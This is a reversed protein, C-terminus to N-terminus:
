IPFRRLMSRGSSGLRAWRAIHQAMTRTLSWPADPRRFHETGIRRRPSRWGLCSRTTIPMWSDQVPLRCAQTWPLATEFLSRAERLDDRTRKYLHWMGRQYVDWASLRESPKSTARQQEAKGLEPAIAAVIAATVEDQVAFIDELVRDFREAWIQKGPAAEILQASIRIRDGVKRVSGDLVYSVGLQQGVQKVDVAEGKYTFTSNRAIVLLWRNRSLAAIIDESVGDAFYEQEPDRSLNKFPLVAISPKDTPTPTTPEPEAPGLADSSEIAIRYIRIPEAVNKLGQEGLDEFDVDVKGRVQRYADDSLCIGGPDARGELRAAINFGDGYLDSDEVIVDGLNLGIRFQLRGKEDKGAEWESLGRQWALACNLADVVSAFEVLLGDGMLKVIRGSHQSVLPEILQQRIDTLRTLTGAEDDGMLRTYGVVDAALIAALRREM